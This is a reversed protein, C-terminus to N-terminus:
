ATKKTSDEEGLAEDLQIILETPMGAVDGALIYDITVGTLRKIKVLVDTPPTSRGGEYTYWRQPTAGVLSAFRTANWGKVTRIAVLRRAM